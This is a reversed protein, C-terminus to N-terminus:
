KMKQLGAICMSYVDAAVISPQANPFSTWIDEIVMNIMKIDGKDKRDALANAIKAKSMGAQKEASVMYYLNAGTECGEETLAQHDQAWGNVCVLMGIVVIAKRM